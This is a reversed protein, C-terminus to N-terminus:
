EEESYGGCTGASDRSGADSACAGGPEGDPGGCCSTQTCSCGCPRGEAAIEGYYTRVSERKERDTM